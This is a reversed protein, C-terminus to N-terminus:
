KQVMDNQHLKFCRLAHGGGYHIVCGDGLTAWFMDPLPQLCATCFKQPPSNQPPLDAASRRKPM